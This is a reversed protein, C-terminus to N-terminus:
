PEDHNDDREKQTKLDGTFRLQHNDVDVWADLFLQPSRVSALIVMDSVFENYLRLVRSWRKHGPLQTLWLEKSTRTTM